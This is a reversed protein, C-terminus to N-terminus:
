PLMVATSSFLRVSYATACVAAFVLTDEVEKIKRRSRTTRFGDDGMGVTRYVVAGAPVTDQGWEMWDLHEKTAPSFDAATTIMENTVIFGWTVTVAAAGPNDWNLRYRIGGVTLGPLHGGAALGVDLEWPNLPFAIFVVGAGPTQSIGLRATDVRRPNRIPRRLTTRRRTIRAM